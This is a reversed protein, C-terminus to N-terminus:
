EGSALRELLRSALGDTLAVVSREDERGISVAPLKRAARPRKQRSRARARPAQAFGREDSPDGDGMFVETPSTQDMRFVCRM